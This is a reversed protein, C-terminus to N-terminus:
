EGLMLAIEARLMKIQAYYKGARATAHQAKLVARTRLVEAENKQRVVQWYRDQWYKSQESNTAKALREWEYYQDRLMDRDTLAQAACRNADALQARLDELESQETM